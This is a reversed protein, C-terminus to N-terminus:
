FCDFEDVYQPQRHWVSMYYNNIKKLKFDGDLIVSISMHVSPQKLHNYDFLM